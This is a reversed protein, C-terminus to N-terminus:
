SGQSMWASLNQNCYEATPIHPKPPNHLIVPKIIYFLPSSLTIRLVESSMYNLVIPSATVNANISFQIWMEKSLYLHSIPTWQFRSFQFEQQCPHLSLGTAKLALKLRVEYECNTISLAKCKLWLKCATYSIVNKSQLIGLLLSSCNGQQSLFSVWLM